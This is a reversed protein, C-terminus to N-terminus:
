GLNLRCHIRAWLARKKWLARIQWLEPLGILVISLPPKLDSEYLVAPTKPPRHLPGAEVLLELMDLQRETPHVRRAVTSGSADDLLAHM